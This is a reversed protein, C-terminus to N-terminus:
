RGTLSQRWRALADALERYLRRREAPGLFAGLSLRRGHSAVLLRNENEDIEEFVLRAWAPEFRWHHREGRVGVREVTLESSTLRVREIKRASRYSARFALYVLAADLGFFGTVPWAGLLVCGVSLVLSGGGLVAMVAGFGRPSLSRYPQLRADFFVPPAADTASM